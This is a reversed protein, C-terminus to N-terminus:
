EMKKLIDGITDKGPEELKVVPGSPIRAILEQETVIQGVKLPMLGLQGEALAQLRAPQTLNSWEAELLKIAEREEAIEAKTRAIQRETARMQHELSYLIFASVLATLVLFANFMRLM